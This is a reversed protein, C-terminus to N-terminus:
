NIYRKLIAIKKEHLDAGTPTIIYKNILSFNPSFYSYKYDLLISFRISAELACQDAWWHKESNNFIGKIYRSLLMSAQLSSNNYLYLGLGCTFRQWPLYSGIVRVLQSANNSITEVVLDNLDNLIVADIEGFFVPKKYKELLDNVVLLRLVASIPRFDLNSPCEFFNILVFHSKVGLWDKIKAKIDNKNKSNVIYIHVLPNLTNKFISKLFYEAYLDFYNQDCSISMIYNFDEIDDLIIKNKSNLFFEENIGCNFDTVVSNM